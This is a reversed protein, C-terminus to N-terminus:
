QAAHQLFPSFLEMIHKLEREQSPESLVQLLYSSGSLQRVVQTATVVLQTKHTDECYRVYALLQHFVQLLCRFGAAALAGKPLNVFLTLLNDQLTNFRELQYRSFLSADQNNHDMAVLVTRKAESSFSELATNALTHLKEEVLTYYGHRNIEELVLSLSRAQLSSYPDFYSSVAACVKEFLVDRVQYLLPGDVAEDSGLRHQSLVRFWAFDKLSKLKTDTDAMALPDWHLLETQVYPAFVKEQALECYTSKYTEPFKAKWEQFRGYVRELSNIEDIADAFLDEDKQQPGAVYSETFHQQYKLVRAARLADNLPAVAEGSSLLDLHKLGFVDSQQLVGSNLFSMIDEEIGRKEEQQTTKVRQVREDVICKEKAKIVPAKERLCFSLGKVFDEIEQFYDFEESSVLLEEQQQKLTTEILAAEAELRSLERSVREDEFTTSELSKELKGLVTGLSVCAVNRRMPYAPLGDRSRRGKSESTSPIRHGGRRMLEEEWRRNQEDDEEETAVDEVVETTKSIGFGDAHEGFTVRNKSHRTKKIGDLSIFEEEEEVIIKEVEEDNGTEMELIEVDEPTEEKKSSLLVSQESRLSALMETSYQGIPEEMEVDVTSSVVLNPRMKRKKQKTQREGDDFSLLGSTETNANGTLPVQASGVSSRVSTSRSSFTMASKSPRSRSRRLEELVQLDSEAEASDSPPPIEATPLTDVNSPTTPAESESEAEVERRKRSGAKKKKSRFM